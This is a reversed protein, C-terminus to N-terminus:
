EEQEYGVLLAEAREIHYREHRTLPPSCSCSVARAKVDALLLYLQQKMEAIRKATTECEDLHRNLTSQLAFERACHPCAKMLSM